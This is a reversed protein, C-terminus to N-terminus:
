SRILDLPDTKIGFRQRLVRGAAHVGCMGHVGPGPPTSASCLYVGPIPTRYPDWQPVPRFVTQRVSLAGAGIDGGVYNANYRGMEVATVVSREVVLDRFGPAFREIQATVREAVDVTSGNPVHAYSWLTHFGEPARGPDVVEPQGVLVYPRSPHRGAAVEEEAAVAEARDGIVHLTGARALDPATWPVPGSLAFDVKCVGGGYRFARLRRVYRDPLEAMGALAAPTVDLLVAHAHVQSLSDIRSDTVIKGGLRVLEAALADVISQSGGRAIPWGVAHALTALLLGAGAPALARPPTVAHASVGTLLAPAVAERFRAGWLPSAQELVRLPFRLARPVSRFDSMALDVLGPWDRVLPGLLRRWAQGDRGLGEATRDLDRWAVGARGGDLPHAYSVEPVLLDVGHEALGFARFFPSALGMPHAHACVDHRLGPLTSEATRSGGGITPAAEHVEVALGAKALVLAAALGNPGAGVVVADM